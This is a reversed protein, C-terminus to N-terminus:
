QYLQWLRHIIQEVTTKNATESKAKDNVPRNACRLRRHTSIGKQIYKLAYIVNLRESTQMPGPKYIPPAESVVPEVTINVSAASEASEANEVNDAANEGIKDASEVKEVAHEVEEMKMYM